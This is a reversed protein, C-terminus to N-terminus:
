NPPVGHKLKRKRSVWVASLSRHIIVKGSAALMHSVPGTYSNFFLFMGDPFIEARPTLLNNGHIQGTGIGHGRKRRLFTDGTRIDLIFRQIHDHIDHIGRVEASAQKKGGLKQLQADRHHHCQVLRIDILFLLGSNIDCGQGPPQVTRHHFRYGGIPFSQLFDDAHCNGPLALRLGRGIFLSVDIQGDAFFTYCVTYDLVKLRAVPALSAKVTIRNDEVQCEYCKNHVKDYREKYWEVKIKRDNDTPARWLTLQM